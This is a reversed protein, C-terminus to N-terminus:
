REEPPETHITLRFLQPFHRLTRAELQQTIDHVRTIPLSGDLTAHCSAVVKGEVRRV